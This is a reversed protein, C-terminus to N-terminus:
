RWKYTKWLYVCLPVIFIVEKLYKWLPFSALQSSRTAWKTHFFFLLLSQTLQTHGGWVDDGNDNDDDSLSLNELIYWGSRSRPQRQIWEKTGWKNSSSVCEQISLQHARFFGWKRGTLCVTSISLLKSTFLSLKKAELHYFLIENIRQFQKLTLCLGSSGEPFM